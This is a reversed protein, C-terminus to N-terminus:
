LTYKYFKSDVEMVPFATPLTQKQVEIFRHKVYFRHAAIFKSTTGLYIEKLSKVRAYRILEELLRHAVSYASGRYEEKVFMKRLASQHNGIDLLSITGIIKKNLIAVWFNGAGKQYFGKIDSLDPQEEATIPIGFEKQQIQVILDIIQPKFEEKYTYIQM